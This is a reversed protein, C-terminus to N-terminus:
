NYQVVHKPWCPWKRTIRSHVLHTAYILYYISQLPWWSKGAFLGRSANPRYNFPHKLWESRPPAPFFRRSSISAREDLGFGLM